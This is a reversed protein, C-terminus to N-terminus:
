AARRLYVHQRQGANRLTAPNTDWTSAIIKWPMHIQRLRIAVRGAFQWHGNPVREKPERQGLLYDRM